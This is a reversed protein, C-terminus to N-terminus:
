SMLHKHLFAAMAELTEERRQFHSSHGCGPLLVTEVPGTVRGAISEVQRATGFEDDEGQIVLVPCTVSPLLEELNWSLFEPRLWVDAWGQFTADTGPGHLRALKERVESAYRERVAAISSVTLPEVFVHPAELALAIVRDRTSARAAHILSISAGDSHGVLIARRIALKELIEPLSILAEDHMFEVPRPFPAPDSSGYGARSYVLAGCELNAALEPAFKKWSDAAGLGDHLFILTPADEPGPGIWRAELRRGAAELKM